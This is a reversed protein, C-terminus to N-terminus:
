KPGILEIFNGDPDQLLVFQRTEDPMAPTEELPKVGKKRIRYLFPKMSKVFITIYQIGTDDPVYNPRPHNAKKGFTM